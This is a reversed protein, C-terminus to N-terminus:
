SGAEVRKKLDVLATDVVAKAAKRKLIGLIPVRVDVALRFRVDTGSGAAEVEYAGDMATLMDGEVLQWSVAHDSWTYAVVYTDRVPPADLRMRATAPRGDPGSTLVEVETIGRTWEPYRAVDAIVAMVARPDADVHVTGETSETV